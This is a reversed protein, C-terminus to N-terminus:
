DVLPMSYGDDILQKYKSVIGPVCGCMEEALKQASTLLAEPAVVHNVLGWECAQQADITNGTFSMEKARSLGILRPLRQSLGWGPLVGVRAHTDAFKANTSAIIVDCALALEFGGTIAFGNVAAIIPGDFNAMVTAIMNESAEAVNADFGSAMEKLDFGACFAKGSGTVIVAKVNSDQQCSEFASVFQERLDRSLANMADPRNLTIVAYGAAHRDILIPSTM